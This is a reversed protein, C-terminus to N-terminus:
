KSKADKDEMYFNETDKKVARTIRATERELGLSRIIAENHIKEM